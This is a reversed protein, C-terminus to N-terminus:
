PAELQELEEDDMGLHHAVEHVVTARVERVMAEYGGGRVEDMIPRRFLTIRDPVALHYDGARELRNVGEYLGLLEAGQEPTPWEQVVVAVNDLRRKVFNPLGAVAEAVLAAFARASTRPATHARIARYRALRQLRSDAASTVATVPGYAPAGRAVYEARGPRWYHRLGMSTKDDAPQM